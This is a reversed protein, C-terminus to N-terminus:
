DGSDSGSDSSADRRERKSSHKDKHRKHKHKDKKHKHKEKKRKRREEEGEDGGGIKEQYMKLLKRRQKESLMALVAPDLSAMGAAAAEAAQQEALEEEDVMAVFQQSADGMQGGGHVGSAMEAKPAWRLPGASAEGGSQVRGALPDDRAKNADDAESPMHRMPCERDGAQHGWEGCRKCKINRLSVGFPRHHVDITETHKGETPANQLIAFRESDREARTQQSSSAAAAAASAQQRSQRDQAEKMGPPLQYMFGMGGDRGDVKAGPDLLKRAHRRSEEQEHEHRLQEARKAEQEKAEEASFLKKLNRPNSPHFSKKGLFSLSM